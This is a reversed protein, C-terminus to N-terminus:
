WLGLEVLLEVSNWFIDGFFFVHFSQFVCESFRSYFNESLESRVFSTKREKETGERIIFTNESVNTSLQSSIGDAAIGNSEM